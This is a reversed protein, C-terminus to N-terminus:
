PLGHRGMMHGALGQFPYITDTGSLELGLIDKGM